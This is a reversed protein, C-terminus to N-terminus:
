RALRARGFAFAERWGVIPPHPVAISTGCVTQHVQEQVTASVVPEAPELPLWLVEGGAEDYASLRLQQVSRRGCDVRFETAWHVIVRGLTPWGERNVTYINLRVQDGERRVSAEDIFHVAHQNESFGTLAGTPLDLQPPRSQPAAIVSLSAALVALFSIM